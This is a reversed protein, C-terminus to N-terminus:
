ASWDSKTRVEQSQLVLAVVEFYPACVQQDPVDRIDIGIPANSAPNENRLELEIAVYGALGCVVDRM